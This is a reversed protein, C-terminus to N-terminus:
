KNGDHQQESNGETNTTNMITAANGATQTPMMALPNQQMM